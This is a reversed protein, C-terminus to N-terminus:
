TPTYRYKKLSDFLKLGLALHHLPNLLSEPNFVDHTGMIIKLPYEANQSKM